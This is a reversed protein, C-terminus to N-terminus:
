VSEEKEPDGARFDGSHATVSGVRSMESCKLKKMRMLYVVVRKQRNGGRM